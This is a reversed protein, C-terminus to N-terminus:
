GPSRHEPAAARESLLRTVYRQGEGVREVELAMDEMAQELRALRADEMPPRDRDAAIRAMRERHQLWRLLLGVSTACGIALPVAVEPNIVTVV